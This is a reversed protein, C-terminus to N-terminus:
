ELAAEVYEAVESSDQDFNENIFDSIQQQSSGEEDKLTAIAALIFNKYQIEESTM